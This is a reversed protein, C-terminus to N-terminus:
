FIDLNHLLIAQHLIDRVVGLTSLRGIIAWPKELFHKEFMDTLSSLITETAYTKLLLLAWLLHMLRYQVDSVEKLRNWVLECM